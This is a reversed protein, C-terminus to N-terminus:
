ECSALADLMFHPGLLIDFFSESIHIESIGDLEKLTSLERLLSCVSEKGAM